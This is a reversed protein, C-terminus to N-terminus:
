GEIWVGQWGQELLFRTNNQLGDEIGIEVFFKSECGIRRFIEAIMGDEGNQSYVQAQFRALSLPDSYRGRALAIHFLMDAVSKMKPPRKITYARVLSKSRGTIALLAACRM